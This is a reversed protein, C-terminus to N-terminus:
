RGAAALFDATEADSRLRVVPVHAGHEARLAEIRPRNIRDFGWIFRLVKGLDGPRHTEGPRLTRLVARAACVQRPREMWIVLDARPLRLDFSAQAFNGDSVWAPAAHTEGLLARFAPVEPPGWDPRWIDDLCIHPAGTVAALRRSFTTKGTGACGLVVIRRPTM